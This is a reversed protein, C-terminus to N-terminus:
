LESHVRPSRRPWGCSEVFQEFLSENYKTSRLWIVLNHRDGTLIEKAGHWLQGAHVLALGPANQFSHPEGLSESAHERLGEYYM